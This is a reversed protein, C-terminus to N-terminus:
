IRGDIEESRTMAPAEFLSHQKASHSFAVAFLSDFRGGKRSAADSRCCARSVFLDGKALQQDVEACAFLFDIYSCGELNLGELIIM